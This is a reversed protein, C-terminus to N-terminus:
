PPPATGIKITVRTADSAWPWLAAYASRGDPLPKLFLCQDLRMGGLGDVIGQAKQDFTGAKGFEKAPPGLSETLLAFCKPLDQRSFVGELYDGSTPAVRLELSATNRLSAVLGRIVDATGESM